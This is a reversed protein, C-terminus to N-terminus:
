WLMSYALYTFGVLPVRAWAFPHEPLGPRGPACYRVVWTTRVYSADQVSCDCRDACRVDDPITLTPNALGPYFMCLMARIAHVVVGSFAFRLRLASYAVLKLKEYAKFRTVKAPRSAQGLWAIHVKCDLLPACLPLVHM